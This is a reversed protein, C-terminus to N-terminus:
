ITITRQHIPWGKDRSVNPDMKNRREDADRDNLVSWTTEAKGDIPNRELGFGHGVHLVHRETILFRDHFDRWVQIQCSINYSGRIDDTWKRFRDETQTLRQTNVTVHLTINRHLQPPSSRLADLMWTTGLESSFDLFPDAIQVNECRFILRRFIDSFDAERRKVDLSETTKHWISVTNMKAIPVLERALVKPTASAFLAADQHTRDVLAWDQDFLHRNRRQHNNVVAQWRRNTLWDGSGPHKLKGSFLVASRFKDDFWEARMDAAADAETGLDPSLYINPALIM